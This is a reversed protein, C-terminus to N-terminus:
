FQEVGRLANLVDAFLLDKQHALLARNLKIGYVFGLRQELQVEVVNGGYVVEAVGVGLHEDLAAVVQLDRLEVVLFRRPGEHKRKQLNQLKNRIAFVANFNTRKVLECSIHDTNLLM